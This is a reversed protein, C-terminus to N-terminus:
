IKETTDRKVRPRRTGFPLGPDFRPGGTRAYDEAYLAENAAQLTALRQELSRIRDSARGLDASRSPTEPASSRRGPAPAPPASIRKAAAALVEQTILRKKLEDVERRLAENAAGATALEAELGALRAAAAPGPSSSRVQEVAADDVGPKTLQDTADGLRGATLGSRPFFWRATKM